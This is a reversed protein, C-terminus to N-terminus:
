RFFFSLVFGMREVPVTWREMRSKKALRGGASMAPLPLGGRDGALFRGAIAAVTVVTAALAAAPGVGGTGAGAGASATGGGGGGGRSRAAARSAAAAAVASAAWRTWAADVM